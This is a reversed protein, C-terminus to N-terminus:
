ALDYSRDQHQGCFPLFSQFVIYSPTFADTADGSLIVLSSHKLGSDVGNLVTIIMTSWEGLSFCM